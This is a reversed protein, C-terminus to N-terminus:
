FWLRCGLTMLVSLGLLWLVSGELRLGLDEVGLSSVLSPSCGRVKLNSASRFPSGWLGVGHERLERRFHQLALWAGAVM